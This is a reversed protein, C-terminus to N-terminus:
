KASYGLYVKRLKNYSLDLIELKDLNKFTDNRLYKLDNHTILLVEINQTNQFIQEPLTDMHYGAVSLNQLMEINCDFSDNTLEKSELSELSLTKLSKLNEFLKNSLKIM